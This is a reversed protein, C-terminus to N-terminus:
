PLLNTSILQMLTTLMQQADQHINGSSNFTTTIVQGPAQLANVTVFNGEVDTIIYTTTNGSTSKTQTAM